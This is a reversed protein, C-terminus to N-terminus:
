LKAVYKTVAYALTHAADGSCNHRKQLTTHPEMVVLEFRDIEHLHVSDRLSDLNISKSCSRSLCDTGCKLRICKAQASRGISRKLNGIRYAATAPCYSKRVM